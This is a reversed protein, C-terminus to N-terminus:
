EALVALRRRRLETAKNEAPAVVSESLSALLDAVSDYRHPQLVWDYKWYDKFMSYPTTSGELLPQVPVALTPVIAELEKPISSPATLDAVIFRAMRALLTITETVDREGPLDFDFLIPLYDRERLSQRITDLVAKREPTFRGLILVAKKGITDIVQRIRQNNLLLYVFQAVELNDVTITPQDDPTIVLDAQKTSEDLTIDWVSVGHIRCGNLQAERFTTGILLARELNAGSLDAGTLDTGSLDKGSLDTGSLDARCLNTQSLRAGNLNAEGLNARGLNLWRLDLGSLDAGGLNTGGLHAARLNAHSPVVGQVLSESLVAERLDAWRLDAGALDAERLDARRLDAESLKAERLDAGYLKAESLNAERLDARRLNAEGLHAGNLDVERLIAGRLNTGRLYLWRLDLGSLDVGGLNAGELSAGRLNAKWLVAKRPERRTLKATWFTAKRLDTRSLGAHELDAGSLDAGELIARDLRAWRLDAGALDAQRLDIAEKRHGTRWRNWAEVGRRLIALQEENAM